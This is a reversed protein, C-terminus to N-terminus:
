CAHQSLSFLMPIAMNANLLVMKHRHTLALNEFICVMKWLILVLCLIILNEGLDSQFM